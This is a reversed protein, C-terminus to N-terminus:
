GRSRTLLLAMLGVLTKGDEIEDLHATVESIPIRVIEAAVEEAGMPNVPVPTLDTAVFITM